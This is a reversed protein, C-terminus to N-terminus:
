FPIESDDNTNEFLDGRDQEVAREHVADAEAHKLAMMKPAERKIVSALFARSKVTEIDVTKWDDSKSFQLLHRNGQGEVPTLWIDMTLAIAPVRRKIVMAQVLMKLKKLPDLNHKTVQLEFLAGNKDFFVLNETYTCLPKHPQFSPYGLEVSLIRKFESDHVEEDSQGSSWRMAPCNRCGGQNIATVPNQFRESPNIGDDSGCAANKKKSNQGHFLVNSPHNFVFTVGEIKELSEGSEFNFHGVKKGKSPSGQGVTVKPFSKLTDMLERRAMEEMENSVAIENAM